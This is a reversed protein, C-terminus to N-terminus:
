RNTKAQLSRACAIFTDPAVLNVPQPLLEGFSGRLLYIQSYCINCLALEPQYLIFLGIRFYPHLPGGQFSRFPTALLPLPLYKIDGARTRSIGM